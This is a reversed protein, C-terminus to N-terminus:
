LRSQPSQMGTTNKLVHEGIGQKKFFLNITRSAQHFESKKKKFDLNSLLNGHLSKLLFVYYRTPEKITNTAM